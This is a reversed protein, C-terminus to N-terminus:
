NAPAHHRRLRIPLAIFSAGQSPDIHYFGLMLM